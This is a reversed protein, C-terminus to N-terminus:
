AADVIFSGYGVVRDRPGATDGSNATALLRLRLSKERLLRLLGNVARCGCANDGHIRPYDLELMRRITEADFRQATDYDHFHSLDTSVVILTRADDWFPELAAQVEAPSADGVVLPILMFNECVVQLFPVHVELSHEYEHAADNITISPQELLRDRDDVALPVRGLPTLFADASSIALGRLRVRHAPGILVVKRFETAFPAIAAYAAAAVRGSYIYGAHPAVVANAPKVASPAPWAAIYGCVLKRLEDPDAPYFSGAMAPPRLHDM